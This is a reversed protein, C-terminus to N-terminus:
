DRIYVYRTLSRHVYIEFDPIMDKMREEDSMFVLKGDSLSESVQILSELLEEKDGSTFSAKGYPIDAVLSDFEQDFIEPAEEVSGQRIDSEVGYAETNERAGEVMDEDIDLGYTEMGILGAEILIGGTGCFSDLIKGDSSVGALNVLARAQRPHLSVPNSFPRLHNRRREFQGTDISEELLSLYVEGEHLYAKFLNEPDELDVSLGLNDEIIGGIRSEIPQHDRDEEDLNVARVAFSGSIEQDISPEEEIGFVDILEGIEKTFALRSFDINESRFITCNGIDKLFESEQSEAEVVEKLEREPLGDYIESLRAIWEM